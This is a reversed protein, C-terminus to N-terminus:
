NFQVPSLTSATINDSKEYDHLYFDLHLPNKAVAKLSSSIEIDQQMAQSFQYVATYFQMEEISSSQWIRSARV